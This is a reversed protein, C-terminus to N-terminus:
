STQLWQAITTTPSVDAARAEGHKGGNILYHCLVILQSLISFRKATTGWM